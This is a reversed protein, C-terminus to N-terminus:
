FLRHVGNLGSTGGTTAVQLGLRALAYADVIDDSSSTYGWRDKVVEAMRVKDATGKGTVWKKLTTPPCEWTPIRTAYLTHRIISGIEVLTVLSHRNGYAYGEIMILDPAALVGTRLVEDAISQLRRYGTQGNFAITKGIASVELQGEVVLKVVGTCTSPDLGLIKM